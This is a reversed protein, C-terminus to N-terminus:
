INLNFYQSSTSGTLLDHFFNTDPDIDAFYTENEIDNLKLPNFVVKDLLVSTVAPRFSERFCTMFEDSELANFPLVSVSCGLCM